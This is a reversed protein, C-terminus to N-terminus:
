GNKKAIERLRKLAVLYDEINKYPKNMRSMRNELINIEEPTPMYIAWLMGDKAFNRLVSSAKSKPHVARARVEWTDSIDLWSLKLNIEYKIKILEDVPTIKLYHTIARSLDLGDIVEPKGGNDIFGIIDVDLSDCIELFNSITINGGRLFGYITTLSVSKNKDLAIHKPSIGKVEMLKRISKSIKM